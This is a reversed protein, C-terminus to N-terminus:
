FAGELHDVAVLQGRGDVAVAVVDFRLEERHPRDPTEVLWAAAMRRVQAQKTEAVAEIAGGARGGTRRTKVECFVLAREDCAILDIEGFRTRHNRAVVDYGLREFHGAALDEGLQGLRRRPDERAPSPARRRHARGTGAQEDWREANESM